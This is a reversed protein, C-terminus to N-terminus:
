IEHEEAKQRAPAQIVSCFRICYHFSKAAYQAAPGSICDVAQLRFGDFLNFYKGVAGAGSIGAGAPPAGHQAESFMFLLKGAALSLGCVVAHLQGRDDLRERRELLRAANCQCGVGFINRVGYGLSPDIAPLLFVPHAGGSFWGFVGVQPLQQERQESAVLDCEVPDLSM